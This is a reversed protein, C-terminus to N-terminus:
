RKRVIMLGDRIPLLVNEVSNDAQVMTNFDLLAKTGADIKDTEVVKGSWLVNDAIIIGGKRLKQLVLNYYMSYSKKDADIFVLDINDPLKPIIEAADGIRFDIKHGIESADFFQQAFDKREENVEITILKGNETLGEALCMASYGTFTGIELIYNPQLIISIMGLFRGQLHGSLMRPQLIDANTLRDIKKLIDSEPSTHNECYTEIESPIIDFKQPM